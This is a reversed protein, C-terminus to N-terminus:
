DGLLEALVRNGERQAAIEPAEIERAIQEQKARCQAVFAIIRQEAVSRRQILKQRVEEELYDAPTEELLRQLDPVKEEYLMTSVKDANILLIQYAVPDRKMKVLETMGDLRIRKEPSVSDLTRLRNRRHDYRGVYDKLWSTVMWPLMVSIVGLAYAVGGAVVAFIASVVIGLGNALLVAAIVIGVIPTLGYTAFPMAKEMFRDAAAERASMRDAVKKHQAIRPEVDPDTVWYNTGDVSDLWDATGDKSVSFIM